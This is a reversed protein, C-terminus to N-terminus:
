NVCYSAGSVNPENKVMMQASMPIIYRGPNSPDPKGIFQGVLPTIIHWNYTVTYLVIAGPAGTDAAAGGGGSTPAEGPGDYKDNCNADTYQEGTIPVGPLGSNPGQRIGDGNTDTFPEGHGAASFSDFVTASIDTATDNLNILDLTNENLIAMILKTRNDRGAFKTPIDAAVKAVDADSPSQATIGFRSAQKLGGELTVLSAMFLSIEMIGFSILLLVPLILAYEIAVVGRRDRAFSRSKKGLWGSM